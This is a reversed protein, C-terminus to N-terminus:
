GAQVASPKLRAVARDDIPWHLALAVVGLVVGAWWVADYAGTADFLYGALWVGVFSGLQHSFFVFGFLTAMYRPGFIQAILGSTLPVTSLWLLGIAGAFLVVTVPSIPVLVFAVFVISRLGYIGALLYPKSRTQGLVGASYTGVINFLGIIALSVAGWEPAIGKDVLYAPLHVGLFTVHFGCVFFGILLLRYGGHASAERVAEALSQELQAAGPVSAASRGPLPIALPVMFLALAALILLADQWGFSSLLAQGLPVLLLQGSSGGASAIGLAIMRKEPPFSQGVAGLVVGFSTGALAMGNIFGVGLTFSVPDSAQAMIWIGLAYLVGCVLVVRRTGWRDAAMGALPQFAGWMLNQLAIGFSFVERGWGLDGTMPKLYLGFSSRLGVSMLCVVTGVALLIAPTRWTTSM